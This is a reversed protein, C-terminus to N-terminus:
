LCTHPKNDLSALHSILLTDKFTDMELTSLHKKGDLESYSSANCSFCQTYRNEQKTFGLTLSIKWFHINKSVPITKWQFVQLDTSSYTKKQLSHGKTINKSPDQNGGIQRTFLAIYTCYIIVLSTFICRIMDCSLFPM